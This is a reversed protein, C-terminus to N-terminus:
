APPDNELNEEAQQTGTPHKIQGEDFGPSATTEDPEAGPDPAEGNATDAQAMSKTRESDSHQENTVVIEESDTGFRFARGVRPPVAEFM